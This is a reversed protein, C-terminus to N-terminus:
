LSLGVDRGPVQIANVITDRIKKATAEATEETVVTLRVSPDVLGQSPGYEDTARTFIHYHTGILGPIVTRRGLNIIRTNPNALKRVDEDSGLAMILDGKIAMAQFIHGPTNPVSSRDDMTVIKGNVLITDAYGHKTVLEPLQQSLGLGFHFGVIILVTLFRKKNM